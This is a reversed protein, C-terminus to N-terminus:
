VHAVEKNLVHLDMGNLLVTNEGNGILIGDDDVHLIKVDTPVTAISDKIFEVNTFGNVQNLAIAFAYDNRYNKYSIRYLNCYHQYNKKVHGVTDFIYRVRQTKKFVLVTAWVLDIMSERNYKMSQRYTVDHARDHVLFDDNSDMLKSIKDSFCFYDVDLVATVKYPSHDFAKFREVNYWPKGLKTNAKDIDIVNYDCTPRDHWADFTNQDTIVTIPMKLYKKVQKVCRNAIKHYSTLETDFCYLLVGKDM